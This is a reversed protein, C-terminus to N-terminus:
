WWCGASSRCRRSAARRGAAERPGDNDDVGDLASMTQEGEVALAARPANWTPRARPWSRSRGCASSASRSTPDCPMWCDSRTATVPPTNRRRRRWAGDRRRSCSRTSSRSRSARRISGRPRTTCSTASRTRRRNSRTGSPARGDGGGRAGRRPAPGVAVAPQHRGDCRLRPSLRPVDAHVLLRPRGHHEPLAGVPPRWRAPGRQPPRARAASVVEPRNTDLEERAGRHGGHCHRDSGGATRPASRAASGHAREAPRPEITAAARDARRRHAAADAGAGAAARGAPQRSRDAPQSPGARPGALHPRRARPAPAAGPRRAYYAPSPADCRRRSTRGARAHPMAARRRSGRRRRTRARRANGLGPVDTAGRGDPDAGPRARVPARAPVGWQEYKAELDPLRSAARSRAEAAQARAQNEAVDRNRDLAVRLITDLRASRALEAEDSGATSRRASSSRTAPEESRDVQASARFALLSTLVFVTTPAYGAPRM